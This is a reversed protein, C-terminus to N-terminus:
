VIGAISSERGGPNRRFQGPPLPDMPSQAPVPAAPVAPGQGASVGQAITAGMRTLINMVPSKELAEISVQLAQISAVVDQRAADLQSVFQIDANEDALLSDMRANLSEALLAWIHSGSPLRTVVLQIEDNELAAAFDALLKIKEKRDMTTTM